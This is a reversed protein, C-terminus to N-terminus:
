HTATMTWHNLHRVQLATPPLGLNSDQHSGMKVVNTLMLYSKLM